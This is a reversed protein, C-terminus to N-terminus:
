KKSPIKELITLGNNNKYEIFVKWEENNNKIFEDIAFQTGKKIEEVPIGSILSQEEFNCKKRVSEGYIRDTDTFFIVIYKDCIKSFLELERKLQGYVHWTDIVVLDFREKIKLKLNNGWKYKISFNISNDASVYLLEIINCPLEDNLLIKKKGKNKNNILGHTLAYTSRIGSCGTEFITNCNLALEYLVPLHENIESGTFCSTEYKKKIFEM